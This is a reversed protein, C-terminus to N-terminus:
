HRRRNELSQRIVERPEHGCFHFRSNTDRREADTQWRLTKHSGVRINAVSPMKLRRRSARRRKARTKDLAKRPEHVSYISYQTPTAMIPTSKGADQRTSESLEHVSSTSDKSPTEVSPTPKYIDHRIAHRHEEQSSKSSLKANPSYTYRREADTRCHRIEPCGLAWRSYVYPIKRRRRSLLTALSPTPKDADHRTANRPEDACLVSFGAM